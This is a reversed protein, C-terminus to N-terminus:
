QPIGHDLGRHHGSLLAFIRVGGLIFWRKSIMPQGARITEASRGPKQMGLVV